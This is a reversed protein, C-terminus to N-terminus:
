SSAETHLWDLVGMASQYATAFTAQLLYGGTPADWDLMEGAVFVGPIAKLMMRGDFGDWRVGGATSIARDIGSFGTTVLALGKIRKALEEATVPMQGYGERLLGIATADLGAAKRLHNSLTEKCRNKALRAALEATSMDPKLDILLKASGNRKLEARIQRGVGYIAGGELGTSTVIAEGRQTHDAVTIAIRKLAAGASKSRFHETWAIVAGANAPSLPEVAVGQGELVPVWNGNSGLKPWSAGGLALVVADAEAEIAGDPAEFQLRRAQSFGTWRHRTKISVGLGALRTLWARVLPSAKMAKPFVRRSSGVFTEVGLGNAWAVLSEPPFAAVALRVPHAEGYRTVFRDIPESHTLNLGGRGALLLKRAASPMQEYVTVQHGHQAIIEAAYLGAPGAGVIAVRRKEDTM